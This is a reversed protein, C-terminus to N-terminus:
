LTGSEGVGIHHFCATFGISSHLTCCLSILEYPGPRSSHIPMPHISACNFFHLADASQIQLVAVLDRNSVPQVFFSTTLISYGVPANGMFITNARKLELRPCPIIRCLRNISFQLGSSRNPSANRDLSLVTELEPSKSRRLECMGNAEYTGLSTRADRIFQLWCRVGRGCTTFTELMPSSTGNGSPNLALLVQGEAGRGGKGDEMKKVRGPNLGGADWRRLDRGKSKTKTGKNEGLGDVVLRSVRM